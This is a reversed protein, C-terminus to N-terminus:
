FRSPFIGYMTTLKPLPFLELINPIDEDGHLADLLDALKANKRCLGKNWSRYCYSCGNENWSPSIFFHRNWENYIAMSEGLIVLTLIFVCGKYFSNKQETKVFCGNDMSKKFLYLMWLEQLLSETRVSSYEVCDCPRDWDCNSM